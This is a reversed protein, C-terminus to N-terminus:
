AAEASEGKVENGATGLWQRLVLAATAPDEKARKIAEARLDVPAKAAELQKAPAEAELQAVEAKKTAEVAAKAAAEARAKRAKRWARLVLVLVLLGVVGGAIPLYKQVKPPIKPAAAPPEPTAPEVHFPVSEVTLADGRKDDIGVAGRVLGALKDLEERTRPAGNAEPKGDVVVAVTLRKIAGQTSIRKETVHDIEYNRTKTERTIPGGGPAAAAAAPAGADADAVANGEAGPVGAVTDDNAAQREVLTEESRVASKAPDYHDEIRELRSLDVEASVKVDVRGPGVVRELMSKAREELGAELVRAQANQDTDTGNVSGGGAVDDPGVARPRHLIAGDTTSLAVREPGLGPVASAVLHVVSAVEEPGLRRGAKLRV